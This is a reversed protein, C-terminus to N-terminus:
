LRQQKNQKNRISTLKQENKQINYRDPQNGLKFIREDESIENKLSQIYGNQGMRNKQYDSFFKEKYYRPLRQLRGNIRVKNTENQVHFKKNDLYRYGLAPKTSMTAFPKATIGKHYFKNISYGCVYAVSQPTVTGVDVHGKQWIELLKDEMRPQLNFMISHYHPRGGKGGYEGVTYYRIPAMEENAEKRTAFIKKQVKIFRNLNNKRLRKMFDQTDKKRLTPEFEGTETDVMLPLHEEDYTLTIFHASEAYKMENELRFQWDQRKNQLCFLCVGCPVHEREDPLYVPSVCQPM